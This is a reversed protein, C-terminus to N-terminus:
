RVIKRTTGDSMKLISLGKQPQSLQKGEISYVMGFASASSNAVASEIATVSPTVTISYVKVANDSTETVDMSLSQLQNNADVAYIYVYTNETVDYNVTIDGKEAQTFIKADENGIKVALKNNGLTQASIKISGTGNVEIVMGTYNSIFDASGLESAVVTQMAENSTAKSIVICKETADYYGDTNSNNNISFYTDNVVTNNLDVPTNDTNVFDSEEFTIVTEEEIPEIERTVEVGVINPFKGWVAHAKYADVLNEPVYLTCQDAWTQPFQRTTQRGVRVQDYGFFNEAIDPMFDMLVYLKKLSALTESNFSTSFLQTVEFKEISAPLTLEEPVIGGSFLMGSGSNGYRDTGIINKVSKPLSITCKTSYDFLSYGESIDLTELECDQWDFTELAENSALARTNYYKLSNPMTLEKLNYCYRFSMSEIREVGEPINIKELSYCAGFLRSSLAWEGGDDGLIKVSSPLQIETILPCFFFGYRDIKEVGDPVVFKGEWGKPCRLLTKMEKDYLVGDRSAYVSNEADVNYTIDNFVLTYHHKNELRSDDSYGSGSMYRMYYTEPSIYTVSKPFNIVKCYWYSCLYYDSVSEIGNELTISTVKTYDPVPEGDDYGYPSYNVYKYTSTAEDLYYMNTLSNVKKVKYTAGEYEFTAPIVVDGSLSNVIGKMDAHHDQYLTYIYDGVIVNTETVTVDDIYWDKPTILEMSESCGDFMATANELSNRSFNSINLYQLNTCQIFMYAMDKVNETNFNSLDLSALSSCGYFMGGMDTVNETHLNEIGEIESLNSYQLFLGNLINYDSFDAFSSDFVAKTTEERPYSVQGTESDNRYATLCKDLNNSRSIYIVAYATGERSDMNDDYYFTLTGDNLIAYATQAQMSTLIGVFAMLMLLLKKKM